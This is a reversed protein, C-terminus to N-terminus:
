IGVGNYLSTIELGRGGGSQLQVPSYDAPPLSVMHIPFIFYM